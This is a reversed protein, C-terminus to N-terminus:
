RRVPMLCCRLRGGTSLDTDVPTWPLQTRVGLMVKAKSADLPLRVFKVVPWRRRPVTLSGPNLDVLFACTVISISGGTEPKGVVTVIGAPPLEAEKSYM